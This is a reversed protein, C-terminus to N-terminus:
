NKPNRAVFVSKYSLALAAAWAVFYTYLYEWGFGQSTAGTFIEYIPMGHSYLFSGAILDFGGGFVLAFLVAYWGARRGERLLTRAIVSLLFLGVLTYIGAMFFHIQAHPLLIMPGESSLLGLSYSIAFFPHEGAIIVAGWIVLWSAANLTGLRKRFAILGVIVSISVVAAVLAGQQVAEQAQLSL